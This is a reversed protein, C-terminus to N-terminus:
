LDHVVTIRGDDHIVTERYRGCINRRYYPEPTHKSRLIYWVDEPVGEYQRIGERTSLVIHLLAKQPDYGAQSILDNYFNVYYIAGEERRITRHSWKNNLLCIRKDSQVVRPIRRLKWLTCM